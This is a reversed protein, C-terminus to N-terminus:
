CEGLPAQVEDQQSVCSAVFLRDGVPPPPGRELWSPGDPHRVGGLQPERDRVQPRPGEDLCGSPEGDTALRHDLVAKRRRGLKVQASDAEEIAAPCFRGASQSFAFFTRMKPPVALVSLLPPAQM